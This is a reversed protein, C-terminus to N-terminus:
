IKLFFFVLFYQLILHVYLHWMIHKITSQLSVSAASFGVRFSDNDNTYNNYMPMALIKLVFGAVGECDLMFINGM